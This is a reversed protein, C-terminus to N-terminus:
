FRHQLIVGASTQKNGSSAAVKGKSFTANTENDMAVYALTGMTRKSFSYSYALGWHKAGTGSACSVTSVGTGGACGAGLPGKYSGVNVASSGGPSDVDVYSFRLTHPGQIKWDAFLGWGDVDLSTTNTTDYDSKSYMGRLNFVGAFTYGAVLTWNTDTGGSYAAAATGIAQSAPNYDSHNEYAAGVYLPGSRYQGALSYMRPSMTSTEPIGTQETGSSFSALMTFGNWSPSHYNMSRAQRRFFAGNGAATGPPNPAGSASGGTLLIASGGNFGNTGGWWGRGANFVIKQPQDWNGVFLNGWSGKFGIGGNRACWGEASASGSMMGDMSSTCQFWVSLGGGLKEEGRFFLQPESTEMIDTSQGVTSNKPSHKYYFATISGGIQVTSTQALAVSAPAALVGAVAIAMVKKNM